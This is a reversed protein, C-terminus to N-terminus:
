ARIHGSGHCTLASQKNVGDIVHEAQRARELYTTNAELLDQIRRHLRANEAELLAIALSKNASFGVREEIMKDVADVITEKGWKRANSGKTAGVLIELAELLKERTDSSM